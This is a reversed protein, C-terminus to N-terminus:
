RAGTTVAFTAGVYTRSSDGIAGVTYGRGSIAPPPVTLTASIAGFHDATPHALVTTSGCQAYTCDWKVTVAENPAFGAGTLSTQSGPAGSAPALAIAARVLLNVSAFDATSSYVGITYGRSDIAATPVRVRATFTGTASTTPTALVTTSACTVWTCDWKVTLPLDADFGAGHLTVLTGRPATTPTATLTTAVYYSAYAFGGGSLGLAGIGYNRRTAADGPVTVRTSFRGDATAQVTKLLAGTCTRSVCDWRVQVSEHPDFGTGSLTTSSGRIGSTPSASLTALVTYTAAVVDSSTRGIAAVRHGAYSADTPVRVTAAFAGAGDALVSALRPGACSHDCDWYVDVREGPHYGSGSATVAQGRRGSTPSLAFAAAVTFPAEVRQETADSNTRVDVVGNPANAPVSVNATFSGTADTSVEAMDCSECLLRLLLSEGATYGHGTVVIPAGAPANSPQPSLSPDISYTTSAFSGLSGIGGILHGGFTAAPALVGTGFAGTSNATATAITPGGCAASACDWRLTVVEGPTYGQGTVWVSHGTPGSPSAIRLTTGLQVHGVAFTGDSGEAAVPYDTGLPTAAPITVSRSFHGYSDPNVTGLATGGSCGASACNGTLTVTTGQAFGSGDLNVAAGPGAVAPAAPVLVPETALTVQVRASTSNLSLLKISVRGVPDTFTAGVELPADAKTNTEPHTDLLWTEGPPMGGIRISLGTVAPSGSPWRDFRGSIKRYDLYYYPDAPYTDSHGRPVRLLRTGSAAEVPHLPYTGSATIDNLDAAPLTGLQLRRYGDITSAYNSDWDGGMTDFPDGYETDTCTVGLTVPAGAADVCSRSHAHWLGFDHGLEHAALEGEGSFYAKAYGNLWAERAGIGAAQGGFNCAPTMPFVYLVNDYASLNHGQAAAAAGAAVAWNGTDCYHDTYPITYWGFVDGTPDEIGSLSLQGGTSERWYANASKRGTFVASRMASATFPRVPHNRFNIMVVATTHPGLGGYTSSPTPSAARALVTGSSTVQSGAPIGAMDAHVPYRHGDPTRVVYHVRSRGAEFDDDYQVELTGQHIAPRSTAAAQGALRPAANAVARPAMAAGGAATSVLAALVVVTRRRGKLGSLLSM